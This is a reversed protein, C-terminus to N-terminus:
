SDSQVVVWELLLEATNGELWQIFRSNGYAQLKTFFVLMRPFATEQYFCILQTRYSHAFTTLFGFTVFFDHLFPM